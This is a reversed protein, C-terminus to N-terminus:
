AVRVYPVGNEVDPGPKLIGYTIPRGTEVLSDLEHIPFGYPNAVPDGFMEHFLAQPLEDLHELQARRKSRIADAEDLITAIRRQQELEFRPVRTQKLFKFHRSYGANSLDIARLAYYLYRSDFGPRAKLLKTGDAGMAFPFDIYKVARTHDGFVIIPGATSVALTQDNVYGAIPSKGQDVVPLLGNDGLEKLPVRKNGRSVDDFAELFPVSNVISVEVGEAAAGRGGRDRILADQHGLLVDAREAQHPALVERPERGPLPVRESALAP